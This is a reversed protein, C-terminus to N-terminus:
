VGFHSLAKKYEEWQGVDIWEGSYPYVGVKYGSEKAKTLLTPMDLYNDDQIINLVDIDIFYVGANVLFDYEPKENISIFHGNEMEIVGYPITFNRPVCVTTINFQKSKHFDLVSGLDVDIIVDCNTVIFTNEVFDGKILSLSGATGLPKDEQTFQIKSINENEAFYNMITSAKYNLSIIFNDFGYKRCRDMVIEIIPKDGIPILPKPLIKTFPDLRSGQGGAMIVVKNDYRQRLADEIVDEWLILDEVQGSENVIPIQKVSNKKMTIAAAHKDHTFLKKPNTNIIESVPANLQINHLLARRIDGDTLTGTMRGMDDVFILMQGKAKNLVEMAERITINTNCLIKHLENRDM